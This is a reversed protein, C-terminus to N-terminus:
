QNRGIRFDGRAFQRSPYFIALSAAATEYKPSETDKQPAVWESQRALYIWQLRLTARVSDQALSGMPSLLAALLVITLKGFRNCKHPCM